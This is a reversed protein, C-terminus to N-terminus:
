QEDKTSNTKPVCCVKGKLRYSELQMSDEHDLEKQYSKFERGECMFGEPSSDEYGDKEYYDLYKCSYCNKSM